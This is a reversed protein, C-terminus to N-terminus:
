CAAPSALQDLTSDLRDLKMERNYKVLTNGPLHFSYERLHNYLEFQCTESFIGMVKEAPHYIKPSVDM